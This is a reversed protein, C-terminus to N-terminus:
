RLNNVLIHYKEMLDKIVEKMINKGHEIPKIPNELKRSKKPGKKRQVNKHSREPPQGRIKTCQM